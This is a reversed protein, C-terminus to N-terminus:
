KNTEKIDQLFTYWKMQNNPCNLAKMIRREYNELKENERRPLMIKTFNKNKILLPTLNAIELGSLSYIKQMEEQEKIRREYLEKREKEIQKKENKKNSKVTFKFGMVKRGQKEQKYSVKLDSKANIEKIAVDLIRKKFDYMRIYENVGLGLQERFLELEFLPTKVAKKWQILLEYLRVSYNSSFKSTNDIIYQTFFQEAGDIRTIENVVAPTFIIEIGGEDKMYEVQSIWHSKVNNGRESLFTFQRTFLQKEAKKMLIYANEKTTNFMNAYRLASIYLPETASLGKGTERADVIGLQVIRIESLSLNQIVSNLKNSKVVLDM